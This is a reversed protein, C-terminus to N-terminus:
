VTALLAKGPQNTRLTVSDLTSPLLFTKGRDVEYELGQCILTFAEGVNILIHFRKGEQLSLRLKDKWQLIDTIFHPCTALNQRGAAGRDYKLDVTQSSDFDAAELSKDVHLERRNGDADIRDYDYVRYTIDSTQQIEALLVGGGIAHILGPRIFFSDGAKVKQRHVVEEVRNEKIAKAFATKDVGDKVGLVLEAGEDAEIVYWMETKGFSNHHKKAMEDDPHVQISLDKDAHIFKILLPFDYGFREAVESGLLSIQYDQLLKNLSTGKLLCDTVVSVDGPIGSLEWSEGLKNIPLAINKFSNLKDGGWIKSKLIPQFTLPHLSM